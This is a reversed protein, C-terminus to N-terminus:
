TFSLETKHGTRNAATRVKMQQIVFHLIVYNATLTKLKYKPNSAEQQLTAQM